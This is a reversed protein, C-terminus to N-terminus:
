RVTDYTDEPLTLYGRWTAPSHSPLDAIVGTQSLICFIRILLLIITKTCALVLFNM